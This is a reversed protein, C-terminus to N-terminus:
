AIVEIIRESFPTIIGEICFGRRGIQVAGWSKSVTDPDFVPDGELGLVDEEKQGFEVYDTIDAFAIKMYEVLVRQANLGVGDMLSENYNQM